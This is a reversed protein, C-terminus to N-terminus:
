FWSYVNGEMFTYWRQKYVDNLQNLIGLAFNDWWIECLYDVM